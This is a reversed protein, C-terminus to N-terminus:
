NARHHKNGKITKHSRNRVPRPVREDNGKLYQIQIFSLGMLILMLVLGAASAIGLDLNEFAREYIYYVLTQTSGIPGGGTLVYIETFVKLSGITSIIAVLLITPQLHPLTVHWHKQIEGAGDIRAADYLESSVSQLQALYMMM